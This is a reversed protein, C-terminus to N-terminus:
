VKDSFTYRPDRLIYVMIACDGWDSFYMLIHSHEWLKMKCIIGKSVDHINSQVMRPVSHFRISLYVTEFVVRGSM